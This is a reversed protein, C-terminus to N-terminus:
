PDHYEGQPKSCSSFDSEGDPGRMKPMTCRGGAAAAQKQDIRRRHDQGSIEGDEEAGTEEGSEM